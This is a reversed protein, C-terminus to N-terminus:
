NLHPEVFRGQRNLYRVEKGQLVVALDGDFTAAGDYLPNVFYRGSKDILGFAGAMTVPAYGNQFEGAHDFQPSIVIRGKSDIYGYKCDRMANEVEKGELNKVKFVSCFSGTAVAALGDAFPRADTYEPQVVFMGSKDIVGWHCDFKRNQIWEGHDSKEAACDTGVAATALGGQFPNAMQFQPPIAIRGTNDIYGYKHKLKVVALGDSFFAPDFSDDFQPAAVFDGKRNIFGWKGAVEVAAMGNDFFWAGVFTPNIVFKGTRDIFGWKLRMLDAGVSMRALGDYFSGVDASIIAGSDEFIPQIVLHGTLDIFGWKEGIKVRALGERFNTASDFQPKAAFNGKSDIFGQKKGVTVRAREEVFADAEDFAPKIRVAGTSNM